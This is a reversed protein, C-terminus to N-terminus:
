LKFAEGNDAYLGYGNHLDKYVRGNKILVKNEKAPKEIKINVFGMPIKQEEKKVEESVVKNEQSIINVNAKETEVLDYDLMNKSKKKGM